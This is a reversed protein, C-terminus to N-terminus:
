QFIAIPDGPDIAGDQNVRAQDLLFVVTLDGAAVHSVVFSRDEKSSRSKQIRFIRVRGRTKSISLFSCWSQDRRQPVSISFIAASRPTKSQDLGAKGEAAM